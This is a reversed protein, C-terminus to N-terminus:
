TPNQTKANITDVVDAIVQPALVMAGGLMGGAITLGVLIAGILRILSAREAAATQERALERLRYPLDGAQETVRMLDDFAAGPTNGIGSLPTGGLTFIYKEGDTHFEGSIVQGRDTAKATMSGWAGFLWHPSMDSYLPWAEM